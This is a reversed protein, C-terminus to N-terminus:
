RGKARRDSAFRRLWHRSSFGVPSGGTLTSQGIGIKPNRQIGELQSFPQQPSALPLKSESNNHEEGLQSFIIFFKQM